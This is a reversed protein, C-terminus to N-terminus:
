VPKHGIAAEATAVRKVALLILPAKSQKRWADESFDNKDWAVFGAATLLSEWQNGAFRNRSLRLYTAYSDIRQVKRLLPGIHHHLLMPQFWAEVKRMGNCPNPVSLLLSGGPRLVRALEAAVRPADVLYEFVSSAVIGDFSSDEFPLVEWDPKLCDWKVSTGNHSSRAVDIMEEAFDCATVAYGRQGMAAAIEGTGCGLDLINSPPHCM